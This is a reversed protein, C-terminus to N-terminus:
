ICTDATHISTNTCCLTEISRVTDPVNNWIKVAHYHFCCRGTSTRMRPEELLTMSSSCLTRVPRYESIRDPLHSRQYSTRITSLHWLRSALGQGFPFGTCNKLLENSVIEVDHAQWWGLLATRSVNCSTWTRHRSSTSFQAIGAM